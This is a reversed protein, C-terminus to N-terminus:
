AHVIKSELGWRPSQAIDPGYGIRAFMQVTGGDPALRDHIDAHLDAMEPYEQLAQSLPQMGLGARATALNLRLWDQGAAIQD